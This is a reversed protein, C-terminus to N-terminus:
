DRVRIFKIPLPGPLSNSAGTSRDGSKLSNKLAVNISLTLAKAELTQWNALIDLEQPAFTQKAKAWTEARRREILRETEQESIYIQSTSCNGSLSSMVVELWDSMVEGLPLSEARIFSALQASLAEAHQILSHMRKLLKEPEEMSPRLTCVNFKRLHPKPLFRRWLSIPM